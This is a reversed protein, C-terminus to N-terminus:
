AAVGLPGTCLSVATCTASAELLADSAAQLAYHTVLFDCTSVLGKLFTRKFM